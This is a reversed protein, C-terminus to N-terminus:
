PLTSRLRVIEALGTQLAEASSHVSSNGLFLPGETRRATAVLFRSAAAAEIAIPEEGDDLVVLEGPGVMEGAISVFGSHVAIWGVQHGPEPALEFRESANRRVDLLLADNDYPVPGRIGNWSGILVRVDDKTQIENAKFHRSHSAGLELEPPLLMWVQYGVLDTDGISSAAHWVGRGSSMWEIGDPEVNGEKGTTERYQNKGSFIITLTGIGSHPHWRMDGKPGPPISADDLFVFPKTIEAIDGPDILRMVPGMKRGSTRLRIRRQHSDRQEVADETAQSM